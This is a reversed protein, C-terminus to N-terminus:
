PGSSSARIKNWAAPSSPRTPASSCHSSINRRPPTPARFSRSSRSGGPLMRSGGRSSPSRAGCASRRSGSRSSRRMSSVCPSARARPSVCARRRPAERDVADAAPGGESLEAELDAIERKTRIVDPYNDNFRSRLERLEQRLKALSAARADIRVPADTSGPEALEEALAARRELAKAQSDANIRLETHFRELTALNV